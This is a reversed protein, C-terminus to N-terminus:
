STRLKRALHHCSHDNRKQAKTERSVLTRQFQEQRDEPLTKLIEGLERVKREFVARPSKMPKRKRSDASRKVYGSRQM